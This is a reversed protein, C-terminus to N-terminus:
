KGILLMVSNGKSIIGYLKNELSFPINYFTFDTKITKELDGSIPDVIKYENINNFAYIKGNIMALAKYYVLDKKTETNKFINFGTLWNVKGNKANISFLINDTSIVFITDGSVLINTLSPLNQKWITKMTDLNIATTIGNNATAILINDVIVPTTDIDTLEFNSYIIYKGIVNTNFINEGTQKNLIFLEGSSYSAIVYDKYIIPNASGLIASDKINGFSIWKIKGDNTDLAYIKNDSTITYVTDNDIVPTSIPVTNLKKRWLIDGNKSIKILENLRTTIYLTDNYFSIKGGYYNIFNTKEIIKTKWLNNKLDHINKAILNGHTDFLYIINDVIVPSSFFYNKVGFKKRSIRHKIFNLDDIKYNQITENLISNDGYYNKYSSSEQIKISTNDGTIDITTDNLFISKREGLMPKKKDCSVIFICLFLIYILKKLM